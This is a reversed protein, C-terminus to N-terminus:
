NKVSSKAHRVLQLVDGPALRTIPGSSYVATVIRDEPGDYTSYVATEIRGDPNIVFGTAEFFASDENVPVGTVASVLQADAAYAVPFALKYKEALAETVDQDDVSVSVVKIGERDFEDAARSFADLQEVCVDSWSGRYFLIVGFAGALDGPLHIEGGGSRPFTLPPFVDNNQLM